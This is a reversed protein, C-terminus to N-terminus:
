RAMRQRKHCRRIEQELGEMTKMLVKIVAEAHRMPLQGVSHKTIVGGGEETDWILVSHTPDTFVFSPPRRIWEGITRPPTNVPDIASTSTPDDITQPPTDIPDIASTNSPDHAM